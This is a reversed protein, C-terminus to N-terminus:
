KELTTRHQIIANRAKETETHKIGLQSFTPDEDRIIARWSKQQPKMHIVKQEMSRSEAILLAQIEHQSLSLSKPKDILGKLQHRRFYCYM